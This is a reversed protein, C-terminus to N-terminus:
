NLITVPYRGLYNMPVVRNITNTENVVAMRRRMISHTSKCSITSQLLLGCTSSFAPPVCACPVFCSFELHSVSVSVHSLQAVLSVVDQCAGIASGAVNKDTSYASFICQDELLFSNLKVEFGRM